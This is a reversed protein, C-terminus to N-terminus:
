QNWALRRPVEGSRQALIETPRRIIDPVRKRGLYFLLCLLVPLIELKLRAATGLNQFNGVSYVWSDTSSLLALVTIVLVLPLVRGSKGEHLKVFEIPAAAM